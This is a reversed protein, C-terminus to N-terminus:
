SSIKEYNEETLGQRKLEKLVKKKHQRNNFYTLGVFILGIISVWDQLTLAGFGTFVWATSYSLYSNAKDPM